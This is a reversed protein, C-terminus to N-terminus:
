VSPTTFDLDFEQEMQSFLRDLINLVEIKNCKFRITDSLVKEIPDHVKIQTVSHVFFRPGYAKHFTVKTDVDAFSYIHHLMELPVVLSVCMGTLVFKSVKIKLLM